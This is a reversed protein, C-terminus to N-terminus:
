SAFRDGRSATPTFAPAVSVLLLLRILLLEFNSHGCPLPLGDTQSVRHRKTAEAVRKRAVPLFIEAVQEDTFRSKRM